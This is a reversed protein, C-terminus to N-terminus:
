LSNILEEKTAFVESEKKEGISAFAYTVKGNPYIESSFTQINTVKKFAIKNEHMFYVTDGVNFKTAIQM